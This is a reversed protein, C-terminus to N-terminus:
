CSRPMFPLVTNFDLKFVSPPRPFSQHTDPYTCTTPEQSRSLSGEPEM